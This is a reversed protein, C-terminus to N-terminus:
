QHVSIFVTNPDLFHFKVYWGDRKIIHIDLGPLTHHPSMAHDQGQCRKLMGCLDGSSVQGTHLLNKTDIQSRVEHQYAGGQLAAIVRKRAEKFGIKGKLIRLKEYIELKVDSCKMENRKVIDVASYFGAVPALDVDTKILVCQFYASEFHCAAGNAICRHRRVQGAPCRRVLLGAADRCVPGIAGALAM